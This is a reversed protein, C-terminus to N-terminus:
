QAWASNQTPSRDPGLLALDIDSWADEPKAAASGTIAGGTIRPDPRALDLFESRLQGREAPTFMEGAVGPRRAGLVADLRAVLLCVV